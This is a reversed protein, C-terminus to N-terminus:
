KLLELLQNIYERNNALRPVKNQGGLKGRNQMWRYFTGEPLVTLQPAELTTSNYRKAEYDSNVEQLRSDLIEVFKDLSDPMKAFEVLWQHGGKNGNEMYVPGATYNSIVAGTKECASSLAQEANDIIIEEGFANIYHRTRGTIKIKLPSLSTFEITDGIMYRWLGASTSIILAYNVGLKVDAVTVAKTPDDLHEVPLFEYFIGYDLMLLLDRKMPDNQLAFFGESANYAEVYKMNDSPILEEFQKRYPEFGMGGHMFLELNPWIELINDKGTFELLRQLLILNWSPSGSFSTVNKKITEQCIKEIKKEFNPILATEVKPVRKWSAWWPTNDIMIASLDGTRVKATLKELKHSGGLTLSKGEFIKTKPYINVFMGLLDRPGRLHSDRLSEVSVPIFKSKNSTTGSSKAFWNIATPWIINKEGLRARDIYQVFSEYDCVPVRQQFKETSDISKFDYKVGFETEAAYEVLSMLEREQVQVPNNCFYDIEEQRRKFWLDVVRNILM